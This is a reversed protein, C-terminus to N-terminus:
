LPYNATLFVEGNPARKVTASILEITEGVWQPSQTHFTVELVLRAVRVYPIPLSEDDLESLEYSKPFREWVTKPLGLDYWHGAMLINYALGMARVAEAAARQDGLVQPKEVGAETVAAGFCDINFLGEIAQKELVDSGARNFGGSAVSVNILPAFEEPTRNEFNDKPFENWPTVRDSFVRAKWGLPDSGGAAALTQQNAIEIALIAAIQDRVVSITHAGIQTTIRPALTV